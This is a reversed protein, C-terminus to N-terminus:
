FELHFKAVVCLKFAIPWWILFVTNDYKRALIQLQLNYGGMSLTKLFDENAAVFGVMSVYGYSGM